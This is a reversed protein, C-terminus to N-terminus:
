RTWHTVTIREGNDFSRWQGKKDTFGETVVTFRQLPPAPDSHWQGPNGYWFTTLIFLAWGLATAYQWQRIENMRKAQARDYAAQAGPNM